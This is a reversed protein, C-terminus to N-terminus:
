GFIHPNERALTRVIRLYVDDISQDASIITTNHGKVVNRYRTALERFFEIGEREMVNEEQSRGLAVEPDCELLLVKDPRPMNKHLETFVSWPLAGHQYALTSFFYRDLIVSKGSKLTPILANNVFEIRAGIFLLAQAEKSMEVKMLVDRISEASSVSGPERFYALGFQEALKKAHTSKGTGDMGEMVILMGRGNNALKDM